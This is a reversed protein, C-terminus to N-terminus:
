RQKVEYTLCTKSQADFSLALYRSDVGINPMGLNYMLVGSKEDTFDPTGLLNVVFGYSKGVASQGASFAMRECNNGEPGLRENWASREFPVDAFLVFWFVIVIVAIATMTILSISGAKM